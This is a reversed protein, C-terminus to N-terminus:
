IYIHYGYLFLSVRFFPSNSMSNGYPRRRVSFLIIKSDRRMFMIRSRNSRIARLTSRGNLRNYICTYLGRERERERTTIIYGCAITTRVYYFARYTKNKNTTTLAFIVFTERSSSLGVTQLLGFFRIRILSYM